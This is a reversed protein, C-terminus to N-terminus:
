KYIDSYVDYIENGSMNCEDKLFTEQQIISCYNEQEKESRSEGIYIAIKKNNQSSDKSALQMIKAMNFCM